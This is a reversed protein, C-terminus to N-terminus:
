QRERVESTLIREVMQEFTDADIEGMAYRHRLTEIASNPQPAVFSNAMGLTGRLRPAVWRLLAWVVLATVGVWFLLSAGMFALGLWMHGGGDIPGFDRGPM